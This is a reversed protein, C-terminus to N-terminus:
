RLRLARLLSSKHAPCVPKRMAREHDYAELMSCVKYPMYGPMEARDQNTLSLSTQLIPPERESLYSNSLISCCCSNSDFCTSIAQLLAKKQGLKALRSASGTCFMNSSALSFDVKSNVLFHETSCLQSELIKM